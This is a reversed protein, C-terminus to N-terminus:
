NDLSCTGPDGKVGREGKPGKPGREGKRERIEIYYIVTLYINLITFLLLGMTLWYSIKINNDDITVGILILVVIVFLMIIIQTLTLNVGKVKKDDNSSM